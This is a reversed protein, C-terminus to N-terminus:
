LQFNLLNRHRSVIDSVQYRVTTSASHHGLQIRLNDLPVGQELCLMAYTRRMSQPTTRRLHDLETPFLRGDEELADAVWEFAEQFIRYVASQEIIARSRLNSGSLTLLVPVDPEPPMEYLAHYRKLADIAAPTLVVDRNRAGIGAVHLIRIRNGSRDSVVDFDDLKAAVLEESRLGTNAAFRVVFLARERQRKRHVDLESDALKSLEGLAINMTAMPLYRQGRGWSTGSVPRNRARFPMPSVILYEMDRLYGFLSGLVRLAYEISVKNLRGEFPRWTPETRLIGRKACWRQEPQPDALFTRYAAIHEPRASSLSCGIELLLWNIFREAEKRYSRFTQPSDEYQGLWIQVAEFDTEAKMQSPGARRNSGSILLLHAPLREGIQEFPAPTVDVFPVLDSVYEERLRSPRQCHLCDVM